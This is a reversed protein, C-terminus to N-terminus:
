STFLMGRRYLNLAEHYHQNILAIGALGNLSALFTRQAEECEIRAKDILQNLLESM